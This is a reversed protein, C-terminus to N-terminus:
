RGIVEMGWGDSLGKSEVSIRNSGLTVQAAWRQFGNYGEHDEGLKRSNKKM